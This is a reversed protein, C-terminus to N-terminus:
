ILDAVALVSPWNAEGVAFQGVVSTLTGNAAAGAHPVISQDNESLVIFGSNLIWAVM